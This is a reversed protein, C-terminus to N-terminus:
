GSRVSGSYLRLEEAEGDIVLAGDGAIGRSKGNFHRGDIEVSVARGALLDRRQWERILDMDHTRLQSIRMAVATLVRGLVFQLEHSQGTVDCLATGNAGAEGPANHWSNNVNIGIGIILRDKTAAMGGPSEILIGCVKGGNLLVDNPWKIGLTSKPNRFESKPTLAEPAL